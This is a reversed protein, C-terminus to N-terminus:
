CKRKDDPISKIIEQKNSIFKTLNFGVRRCLEQLQKIANVSENVTSLSKLLNDVYFRRELIQTLEKGYQQDNDKATRRLAFNSCSPLSAGGFVHAAM